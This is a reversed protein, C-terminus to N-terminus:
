DRRFRSMEREKLSDVIKVYPRMSAFTKHGTWRMIVEAPIGLFLANVVFTRRGCHTSIIAYLPLVHEFRESRVFYVVRHLSSLGAVEAARKLQENMKQNSIVPLARGGKYVVGSYKDLIARSFENLEIKLVDGTKQTVVHIAGDRIDSAALKAVDSYRLGTFCLFCFVDRVRSLADAEALSLPVDESNENKRVASAFDFDLFALLEDWTLYFVEKHSGDAGKLRLRFSDHLRGSYYGKDFSWRLFWRFYRILKDVSVNRLGCGHLHNVFDTLVSDTLMEFTLSSNFAYLHSRFTGFKKILSDGWSHLYSETKIFEDFRDFFSNMLKVVEGRGIALLFDSRFQDASPFVSDRQYSGVLSDFALEFRGIAKNIVAAGTKKKSHTTSNVCRQTEKNWKSSDVRYGVGFSVIWESCRVRFRLKLDSRGPESDLLFLASPKFVNDSKKQNLSPSM